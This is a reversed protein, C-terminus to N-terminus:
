RRGRLHPFLRRSPSPAPRYHATRPLSRPTSHPSHLSFNDVEVGSEARVCGPSREPREERRQARPKNSPSLHAVRRLLAGCPAVDPIGNQSGFGICSRVYCVCLSRTLRSITVNDSRPLVWSLWPVWFASAM